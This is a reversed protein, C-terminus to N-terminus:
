VNPVQIAGSANDNYLWSWKEFLWVLFFQAALTAIALYLTKRKCQQLIRQRGVLLNSIPFAFESVTQKM